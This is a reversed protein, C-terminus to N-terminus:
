VLSLPSSGASQQLLVLAPSSPRADAGSGGAIQARALFVRLLEEQKEPASFDAFSSVGFLRQGRERFEELQRDLDLAGFSQPLGMATEFVRRLPPNGMVSLWKTEDSVDRAAIDPLERELTLALRMTQDSRGVGIEFQRTLYASGIEEAFGSLATRPLVGNGFGFAASFQRYRGDALKNALAARDRTGEELVKRVFATADIDDDLGFAGLAVSLLRRDAVLDEATGVKAINERFYDLDRQRSPAADFAARQTDMTRKLFQWGAIGGFPVVPQFSM